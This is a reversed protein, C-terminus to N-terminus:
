ASRADGRDLARLLGRRETENMGGWVGHSERTHLAHDLCPDRVPCVACIRKARAERADKEHRKEFYNPAFFFASDEGRCAAALQWGASWDMPMPDGM